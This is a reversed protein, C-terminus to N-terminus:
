GRYVLPEQRLFSVALWLSLVAYVATSLTTLGLHSWSVAGLLLERLSFVVNLGPAIYTWGSRQWEELFPAAMAPLSLVLYVPTFYQQAERINRAFISLALELASLFSVLMFAVVFLLVAPVFTIVVTAGQLEALGWRAGLRLSVLTVAIVIVVSALSAASVALFKGTALIWRSPPAVLLTDLTRREKEGAGLDLAAYQGGLAAWVSIFFPLIGALLVGGLKRVDAINRITVEIPALDSSALGRTRLRQEAVSRGYSAVIEQLRQRAVVSVTLSDDYTITVHARGRALRRAFDAPIELVADARRDVVAQRPQTAEVLRIVGAKVGVAVLQPAHASGVVVVRVPRQQIEQQRRQALFPLGLTVIPMMLVPLLLAVTITRRDRVTETMEKIFVTSILVLSSSPM